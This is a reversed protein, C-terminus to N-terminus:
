NLPLHQVEGGIQGVEITTERQTDNFYAPFTVVASTVEGDLYEEAITKMKVFIMASIEKPSSYKTEGKFDVEIYPRNEVDVAKYLLRKLSKQFQVDSSPFSLFRKISYITNTPTSTM